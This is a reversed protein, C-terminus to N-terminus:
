RSHDLRGNRDLPELIRILTDPVPDNLLQSYPARLLGGLHATIDPSLSAEHVPSDAVGQLDGLEAPRKLSAKPVPTLV